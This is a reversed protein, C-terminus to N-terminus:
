SAIQCMKVCRFAETDCFAPVELLIRGVALNGILEESDRVARNPLSVAYDINRPYFVAM